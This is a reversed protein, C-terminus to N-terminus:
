RERFMRWGNPLPKKRPPAIALMISIEPPRM